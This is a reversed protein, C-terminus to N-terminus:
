MKPPSSYLRACLADVAPLQSLLPCLPNPTVLLPDSKQAILPILHPLPMTEDETQFLTAIQCDLYQLSAESAACIVSAFEPSEAVERTEALINRLKAEDEPLSSSADTNGETLPARDVDKSDPLVLTAWGSEKEVRKIVRQVIEVFLKSTQARDLKSKLTLGSLTDEVTGRVIAAMDDLGRNVLFDAYGLFKHQCAKSLSPQGGKQRDLVSDLYLYRGLLNLQVRLFVALLTASLTATATRSFSLLKLEDWTAYKEEKSLSIVNHKAQTLKATLPSIDLLQLLNEKMHPLMSPMTTSDCIRQISNFHTEVNESAQKEEQERQDEEYEEELRVYEQYSEYLLKAGYVAGASVAGVGVTLLAKNRRSLRSWGSM